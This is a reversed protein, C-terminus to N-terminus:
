LCKEFTRPFSGGGTAGSSPTFSHTSDIKWGTLSNESYYASSLDVEATAPYGYAVDEDYTWRSWSGSCRSRIFVEAFVKSRQVYEIGQSWARLGYIKYKTVRGNLWYDYYGFFIESGYDYKAVGGSPPIQPGCPGEPCQYETYQRADDGPDVIGDGSCGALLLLAAATALKSRTSRM